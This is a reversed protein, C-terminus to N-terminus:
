LYHHHKIKSRYRRVPWGRMKRVITPWNKLFHAIKYAGSYPGLLRYPNPPYGYTHAYTIFQPYEPLYLEEPDEISEPEGNPERVVLDAPEEHKIQHNLPHPGPNQDPHVKPPDHNTLTSDLQIIQSIEVPYQHVIENGHSVTKYADGTLVEPQVEQHQYTVAHSLLGPHYQIVGEDQVGNGHNENFRGPHPFGHHLAYVNGTLPRHEPIDGRFLQRKERIENTLNAGLPIRTGNATGHLLRTSNDKHKSAGATGKKSKGNLKPVCGQVIILESLVLCIVVYSGLSQKRLCNGGFTHVTRM